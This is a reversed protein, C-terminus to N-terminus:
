QNLLGEAVLLAKAKEIAEAKKAEKKAQVEALKSARQEVFFEIAQIHEVVASAKRLGMGLIPFSKTNSDKDVVPTDEFVGVMDNGKYKYEAVVTM